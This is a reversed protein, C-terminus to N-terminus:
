IDDEDEAETIGLQAKLIDIRETLKAPTVDNLADMNKTMAERYYALADQPRDEHEAILGMHYLVDSIHKQAYAREFYGKAKDFDGMDLYMQGTNDLIVADDRDYECAELNYPEAKDFMGATAYVYGLTQYVRLSRFNEHLDELAIVAKDIEGLKFWTIARNMRILSRLQGKCDKTSLASDFHEVADQFKGQKLLLVGFAGENKPSMGGLRMGRRYSKEAKAPFSRMHYFYGLNGFINGLLSM